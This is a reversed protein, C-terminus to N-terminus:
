NTITYINQTMFVPPTFVFVKKKKKKNRRIFEKTLHLNFFRDVAIACAMKSFRLYKRSFSFLKDSAHICKLSFEIM